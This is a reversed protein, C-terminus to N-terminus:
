YGLHLTYQHTLNLVRVIGQQSCIVGADRSHDCNHIGVGNHTCDDLNTEDGQCEVNDLFILGTGPGSIIENNDDKLAIAVALQTCCFLLQLQYTMAVEQRGKFSSMVMAFLLLGGKM